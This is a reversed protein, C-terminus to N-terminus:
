AAQGEDSSKLCATAAETLEIGIRQTTRDYQIREVVMRILRAQEDSSVTTPNSILPIADKLHCLRM